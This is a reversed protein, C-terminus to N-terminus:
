LSVKLREKVRKVPYYALPKQSESPLTDLVTRAKSSLRNSTRPLLAKGESGTHGKLMARLSGTFVAVGRLAGM